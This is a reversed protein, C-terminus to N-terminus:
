KILEECGLLLYPLGRCYIIATAGVLSVVGLVTAPGLPGVVSHFNIKILPNGALPLQLILTTSIPQM